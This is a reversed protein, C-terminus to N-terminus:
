QVEEVEAEVILIRVRKAPARFEEPILGIIKGRDVAAQVEEERFRRAWGRAEEITDVYGHVLNGVVILYGTM